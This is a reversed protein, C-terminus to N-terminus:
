PRTLDTRITLKVYYQTQVVVGCAQRSIFLIFFHLFVPMNSCRLLLFAFCGRALRAPKCMADHRTTDHGYHQFPPAKSVGDDRKTQEQNSEDAKDVM